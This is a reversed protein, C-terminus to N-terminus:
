REYLMDQQKHTLAQTANYAPLLESLITHLFQAISFRKREESALFEAAAKIYTSYTTEAMTMLFYLLDQESTFQRRDIYTAHPIFNSIQVAGLYIPVCGARLVDFIKETLYTQSAMNEYCIAFKYHALTAAKNEVPGRYCPHLTSPWGIGYLDFESPIFHEFARITELRKGYLQDPHNSWKNSSIFACLKKERFSLPSLQTLKPQPYYFSKCQPIIETAEHFLTFVTKFYTYLNYDYNWPKTAPPEWLIAICRDVPTSKLFHWHEATCPIDCCIIYRDPDLPLAPTYVTCNYGCRQIASRLKCFVLACGDRENRNFFQENSSASSPILYVTAGSTYLTWFLILPLIM